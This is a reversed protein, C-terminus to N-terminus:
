GMKTNTGLTVHAESCWMYHHEAYIIFDSCAIVFSFILYM